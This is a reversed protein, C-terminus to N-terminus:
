YSLPPKHLLKFYPLHEYKENGPNRLVFTQPSRMPQDGGNTVTAPCTVGVRPVLLTEISVRLCQVNSDYIFPSINEAVLLLIRLRIFLISCSTAMAKLEIIDICCLTRLKACTIM